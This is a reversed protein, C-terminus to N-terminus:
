NPVPVVPAYRLTFGDFKLMGGGGKDKPFREAMFEYFAHKGQMYHETMACWAQYDNWSDICKTHMTSDLILREEIYADLWNEARKVRELEDTIRKPKRLGHARYNSYGEVLWRLVGDKETRLLATLDETLLTGPADDKFEADFPLVVLRGWLAEDLSENKPMYNSLIVVLGKNKLEVFNQNLMRVLLGDEGGSSLAKLMSADFIAGRRPETALILRAGHLHALDYRAEGKPMKSETISPANLPVAFDGLFTKVNNFFASKGSNRPGLAVVFVKENGNGFTAYGMLRHAFDRVDPDPFWEAVKQRWNPADAEPDYSLNARKTFMDEPRHEHFPVDEYSEGFESPEIVGNMVPLVHASNDLENHYISIGRRTSLSRLASRIPADNLSHVAFKLMQEQTKPDEIQPALVREVTRVTVKMLETAEPTAVQIWIKGELDYVLWEQMDRDYRLRHGWQLNALSAIGDDTGTFGTPTEGDWRDWIEPPFKLEDPAQLTNRPIPVLDANIESEDFQATQGGSGQRTMDETVFMAERYVAAAEHDAEVVETEDETADEVPQPIPKSNALQIM